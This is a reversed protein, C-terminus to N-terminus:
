STSERLIDQQRAFIKSKITDLMEAVIGKGKDVWQTLNQEAYDMNSDTSAAVFAGSEKLRRVIPLVFGNFFDIESEYWDESPDTDRRKDVFSQYVEEFLRVNWKRYVQWHQMTHAIDSAQVMTEMILTAQLKLTATNTTLRAAQRHSQRLSQRLSAQADPFARKWRSDLRKKM